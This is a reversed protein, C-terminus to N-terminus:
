GLRPLSQRETLARRFPDGIATVRALISVIDWRDPRLEPDDLEDWTIPAAVPAGKKGREKAPKRASRATKKATSGTRKRTTGTSAM